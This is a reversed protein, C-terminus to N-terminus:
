DNMAAELLQEDEGLQSVFRRRNNL